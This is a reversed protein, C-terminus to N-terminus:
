LDVLLWQVWGSRTRGIGWAHTLANLSLIHAEVDYGGGEDPEAGADCAHWRLDVRVREVDDWRVLVTVARPHFRLGHSLAVYV